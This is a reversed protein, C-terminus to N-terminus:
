EAKFPKGAVVSNDDKEGNWVFQTEEFHEYTTAAVVSVGDNNMGHRSTVTEIFLTYKKEGATVIFRESVDMKGNKDPATSLSGAGMSVANDFDADRWNAFGIVDEVGAPDTMLSGLKNADGAKLAKMVAKANEGCFETMTYFDPEAATEGTVKKNYTAKATKITIRCDNKYFSKWNAKIWFKM